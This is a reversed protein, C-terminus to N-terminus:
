RWGGGRLGRWRRRRWCWVGGFVRQGYAFNSLRDDDLGPGLRSMQGLTASLRLDKDADLLPSAPADGTDLHAQAGRFAREEGAAFHEHRVRLPHRAVAQGRAV